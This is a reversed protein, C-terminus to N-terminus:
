PYKADKVVLEMECDLTKRDAQDSGVLPELSHGSRLMAAEAVTPRAVYSERSRMRRKKEM